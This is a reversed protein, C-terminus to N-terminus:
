PAYGSMTKFKEVRASAGPRAALEDLMQKVRPKQLRVGMMRLGESKKGTLAINIGVVIM